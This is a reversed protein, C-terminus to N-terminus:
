KVLNEKKKFYEGELQFSRGREILGQKDVKLLVTGDNGSVKETNVSDGFLIKAVSGVIKPM